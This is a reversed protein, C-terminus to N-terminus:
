AWSPKQWEEKNEENETCMKALAIMNIFIKGKAGAPQIIPLEKERLQYRVADIKQGTRRAYEDICVMPTDISIAITM